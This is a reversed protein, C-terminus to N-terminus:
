SEGRPNYDFKEKIQLITARLEPTINKPLMVKLKVIQNGIEQANQIGKGKIRLKTGSTAGEPIVLMVPGYMTQVQVSAGLIGEIFSVALETELDNGSRSWGVLPEVTIEIYADGHSNEDPGQAGMNKFRLKTGSTIGAPIKIELNKGNTLTIVKQSGLVSEKFSISMKYHNDRRKKAEENEQGSQSKQSRQTRQSRFLEEFFDDGGFQDSFSQSYRDNRPGEPRPRQSRSQQWEEQQRENIEGNDYKIRAEETGILDNAHSIAKFKEEAKKNGPNLDPHNKKALHRYAKKIEDQTATKKVGLVEYPNILV